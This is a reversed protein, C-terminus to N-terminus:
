ALGKRVAWVAAQTRDALGIKHLIHEVHATVTESSIHLTKAIDKNRLGNALERLVEAERQTLPVDIDATIRPTVLSRTVRRLEDHTFVSEGRAAMTIANVLEDRTCDKLLFGSAELAVARAIYAPNDFASLMVIPLDPKDLKIRGLATLGDGEPMCVDMLVVDVAHESVYKVAAKGNTVEAVITIETGALLGKIGSLAAPHDDAILLKVKSGPQTVQFEKNEPFLAAVIGVIM